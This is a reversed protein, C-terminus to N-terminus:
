LSTLQGAAHQNSLKGTHFSFFGLQVYVKYLFNLLAPIFHAALQQKLAHQLNLEGKSATELANCLWWSGAHRKFWTKIIDQWHFANM